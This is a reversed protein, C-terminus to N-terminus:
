NLKMFLDADIYIKDLLQFDVQLNESSSWIDVGKRLSLKWKDFDRIFKGKNIMHETFVSLLYTANQVKGAVLIGYIM